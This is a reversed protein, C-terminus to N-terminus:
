RAELATQIVLAGRGSGLDYFVDDEGISLAGLIESWSRANM